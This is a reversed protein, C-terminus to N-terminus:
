DDAGRARPSRSRGSLGEDHALIAKELDRLETGPEIGIEEILAQRASRYADLADAQRGGRYLALMLKARLHERFPHERVLTELQPIAEDHLGLALQADIRRVVAAIKLNELRTVADEVFAEFSLDCLPQGRWLGLAEDLHVAAEDPADADFATGAAAMRQEFCEVDLEGPWTQLLYGAPRTVLRRGGGETAADLARRLRSVHVQLAKAATTPPHSDWLEDILRDASVLENAHLLLIALLARQKRGHLPVEQGQDDVVELPGLIRFQM